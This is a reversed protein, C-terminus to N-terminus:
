PWTAVNGVTVTTERLGITDGVAQAVPGTVVLGLGVLGILVVAALTAPFIALVAYFTRAAASDICQDKGFERM